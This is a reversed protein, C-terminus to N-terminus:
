NDLQQWDGNLYCYINDQPLPPFGKYTRVICLDGTSPSSPFSTRPELRLVDNIHVPRQPNTTGIGVNGGMIAMTNDQSVVNGNQDNLAIAISYDGNAEIERGIATAYDGSATTYHGIATSRHGSATTQYGM